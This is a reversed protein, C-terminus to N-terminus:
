EGSAHDQRELLDNRLNWFEDLGDIFEVVEKVEELFADAQEEGSKGDLLVDALNRRIHIPHWSNRKTADLHHIAQWAAKRGAPWKEALRKLLEKYHPNEWYDSYTDKLIDFIVCAGPSNEDGLLEEKHDKGDYLVGVFIDPHWGHLVNFGTRGWKDELGSPELMDSDKKLTEQMVQPWRDIVSRLLVKLRRMGEDVDPKAKFAEFHENTIPLMPGLGRNKLLTLFNQCVFELNAKESDSANHSLSDKLWGHLWNYVDRWLLHLDPNQKQQDHRATILIIAFKEDGYYSEGVRRYNELQNSHLQTWIKHEFILAQKGFICTMDPRKSGSSIQFSEQTNWGPTGKRNDSVISTIAGRM